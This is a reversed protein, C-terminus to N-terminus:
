QAPTEVVIEPSVAEPQQAAPNIGIFPVDAVKVKFLSWNNKQKQTFVFVIGDQETQYGSVFNIEM